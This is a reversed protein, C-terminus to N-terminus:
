EQKKVFRLLFKVIVTLKVFPRAEIRTSSMSNPMSSAPQPASAVGVVAGAGVAVFAAAVAVVAAGAAVAVLAAGAAVAVVAM